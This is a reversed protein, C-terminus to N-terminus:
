EITFFPRTRLSESKILAAKYYETSKLLCFAICKLRDLENMGIYEGTMTAKHWEPSNNEGWQRLEEWGGIGYLLADDSVGIQLEPIPTTTFPALSM